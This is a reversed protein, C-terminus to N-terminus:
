VPFMTSLFSLESSTENDNFYGIVLEHYCLEWVGDDVEHIGVTRHALAESVFMDRRSRWHLYGKGDVLRTEFYRPYRPSRLKAQRSSRRYLDAPPRQGLAEHPREFNFRDVFADFRHQQAAMSSEPPRATDAKLTRHMREHCGNEAPRGPHIREHHIGRDALWLSFQLTFPAGNDSRVHEPAGYQAIAQEIRRFTQNAEIGYFGHSCLLMRSYLDSITLPYCLRGNGLRFEGKFDVAWVHNPAQADTLETRSASGHRRRRRPKVRGHRKLLEGITSAAPWSTRPYRRELLAKLKKAGWGFKSHADLIREELKAELAHPRQHPARPRDQLGEAGESEFRGKWKYGTARCVGLAECAAEMPLGTELLELLLARQEVANRWPM